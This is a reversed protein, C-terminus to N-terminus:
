FRSLVKFRDIPYYACIDSDQPDGRDYRGGMQLSHEDDFSIRGLADTWLVLLYSPLGTVDTLQKARVVKHLNVMATEFKTMEFTRAKIEGFAAPKNESHDWIVVDLGYQMPLKQLRYGFPALIEGVRKENALDGASEYLPRSM